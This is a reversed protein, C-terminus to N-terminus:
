YEHHMTACVHPTGVREFEVGVTEEVLALLLIETAIGENEEREVGPWPDAKALLNTKANKDDVIFCALM